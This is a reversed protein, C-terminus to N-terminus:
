KKYEKVQELMEMSKILPEWEKGNFILRFWKKNRNEYKINVFFWIGAYTFVATIITQIIIFAVGSNVIMPKSLYFTTWAPFQLFLLRTVWITSSKLTALRSQTQLISDNINVQQILILQYVYVIIAAKTLLVQITASAIFFINSYNLSAIIIIDVFAVWIIGTVITFIKLPQMTALLSKAKLKTIEVANKKNLVLSEELKQEYAKWLNIMEVDQM